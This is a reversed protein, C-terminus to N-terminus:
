LYLKDYRKRLHIFLMLLGGIAFVGSIILLLCLITTAGNKIIVGALMPLFGGIMTLIGYGVAFLLGLVLAIAVNKNAGVIEGDGVYNFTPTMTDLWICLSTLAINSFEAVFFIMVGMVPSVYGSSTVAIVCLVTSLTAIGSYLIFKALIQKWYPLPIIKTHYFCGAERSLATSSFSVIVTVFITIVMLAIGPLINNGVSDSGVSGAIATCYYVMVPAAAAMVIYQFSYNFSRVIGFFERKMYSIFPPLPHNGTRKTFSARQNEVGDLITRFYWKKVVFFAIIGVGVTLLLIYLISLGVNNGLLLNGYINFPFASHAFTSIKQVTSASFLTMDEEIYFTVLSQLVTMYLIFVGLIAGVTVILVLLYKNKIFNLFKMVPIAVINALFFPLFSSMFTVFIAWAYFTNPTNPVLIGYCIYVPLLMLLTVFFNNILVFLSKAIFIQTGNVPFRLLIENDGSYYLSKILSITCIFFQLLISAMSMLILYSDRLGPRVVFMKTFFYIMFVIITYIGASAIINVLGKGINGARLKQGYGFRSKMDLKLLSRVIRLNEKRERWTTRPKKVGSPIAANSAARKKNSM